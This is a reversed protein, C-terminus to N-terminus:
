ARDQILISLTTPREPLLASAMVTGEEDHLWRRPPMRLRDLGVRADHEIAAAKM